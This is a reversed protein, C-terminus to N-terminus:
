TRAEGLKKKHRPNLPAVVFCKSFDGKFISPAQVWCKVDSLM